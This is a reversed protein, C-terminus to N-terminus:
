AKIQKPPDTVYTLENLYFWKDAEKCDFNHIWDCIRYQQNFATGSGCMYPIRRGDEDCMHFLMCEFEQDAYFGLPRDTCDFTLTVNPFEEWRKARHLAPLSYVLSVAFAVCLLVAVQRMMKRHINVKPIGSQSNSYNSFANSSTIM